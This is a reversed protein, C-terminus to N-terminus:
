KFFVKMTELIILIGLNEKFQLWRFDKKCIKNGFGGSSWIIARLFLSKMLERYAPLGADGTVKTRHFEPRLKQRSKNL